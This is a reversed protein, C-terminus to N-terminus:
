SFICVRTYSYIDASRPAAWAAGAVLSRRSINRTM